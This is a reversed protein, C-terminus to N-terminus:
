IALGLIDNRCGLEERKLAPGALLGDSERRELRPDSMKPGSDRLVIGLWDLESSRPNLAM